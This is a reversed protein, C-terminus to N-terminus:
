ARKGQLAAVEAASLMRWSGPPLTGLRLPGIRVRILRNVGLGIYEAM